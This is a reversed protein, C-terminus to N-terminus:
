FIRCRIVSWISAGGAGCRRTKETWRCADRVAFRKGENRGMVAVRGEGPESPAEALGLLDARGDLDLDVAQALRALQRMSRGRNSVHDRTKGASSRETTNRWAQVPGSSCVAVLDPRGDADLHTTLLGSRGRRAPIGEIPVEHFEGLRDNLM